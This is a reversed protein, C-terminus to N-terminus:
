KYHDALDFFWQFGNEAFEEKKGPMYKEGLEDLKGSEYYDRIFANLEDVLEKNGEQVAIGWGGTEAQSLSICKTKDPNDDHYNTCTLEDYIFGDAKGQLVENICASEDNLVTLNAEPFYDQAYIHGVTGSKVAITIDPSNFDEDTEAKSGSSALIAIKALAYADSFDVLEDREETISMASIVADTKGTQLAPILGDWSTDSIEVDYGYAAGFDKILDVDVGTPEGAEDKFDFPPYALEIAVRLTGKSEAAAQTSAEEAAQTAAESGGSDSTDAESSGNGGGSSCAALSIILVLALLCAIIHKKWNRYM